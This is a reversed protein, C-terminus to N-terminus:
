KYKSGLEMIVKKSEEIGIQFFERDNSVRYPHLYKHIEFELSKANFCRFAFAVDFGTPVGTSRSIQKARIHPEIQTFGIKVMSPISKNTLIYIWSDGDGERNEYLNTRRSTYYRVIDWENDLPDTEITYFSAGLNTLDEDVSVYTLAEQPTIRQLNM